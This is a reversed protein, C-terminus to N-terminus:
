VAKEKLYRKLLFTLFYPFTYFKGNFGINKNCLKIGYKIDAYQKNNILNNLSITANNNAKVEVPVLSDKDRIMFDMEIKKSDDKYFYLNYGEKVLMDSVINEYLAGKYTNMNENNRLDEQVEEDLSGILLGTDAFYLRYNDPNYNGKLPLSPQEMLYSVNVIGANELWEIIGVYERNRAGDAIKSIQFKKNENGLFVPIKRYCNLIKTKDLGGAYKTIDEEYDLLIQQQMKLIGSFNKNEIFRSVIAPMGGVIMYEKFNSMMVNYQMNSLPQLTIMHTYLEEIQSNSYGKAWLFEEFDLSKMIYDEKNGVSNSEIEKYNIGMLSGSCIVDYRGDEKFAKLSTATSVCEQMEDFFILTNNESIELEPMKLTINKIINDVEFGEEFITKFQPQLVFNIEIFTKYNNKGFNRIANTKGIQRAGKIILPLRNKNNKWEILYNDIKRKLREM